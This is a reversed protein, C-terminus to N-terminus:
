GMRFNCPPFLLLLLVASWKIGDSEWSECSETHRM